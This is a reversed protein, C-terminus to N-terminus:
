LKLHQYYTDISTTFDPATFNPWQDKDFGPANKLREKEINIVFCDDSASYSFAHWPIAFLKNGFGLFGGFELVLYNIKGSTKDIVLEAIKGLAEDTLNKVKVDIIESVKVVNQNTM